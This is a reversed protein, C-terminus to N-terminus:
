DCQGHALSFVVGQFLIGDGRQQTFLPHLVTQIFCIQSTWAFGSPLPDNNNGTGSEPSCQLISKVLLSRAAAVLGCSVRIADLVQADRDQPPVCHFAHHSPHIPWAPLDLCNPGMLAGFGHVVAVDKGAKM